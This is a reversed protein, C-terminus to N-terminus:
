EPWKPSEQKKARNAIHAMKAKEDLKPKKTTQAM